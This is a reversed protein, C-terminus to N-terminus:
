PQPVITEFDFGVTFSPILPGQVLHDYHATIRVVDVTNIMTRNIAINVAPSKSVALHAEIEAEIDADTAETDIVALRAARDVAWQVSSSVFILRSFEFIGFLMAVFVPLVIAFETATAGSTSRALHRWIPRASAMM